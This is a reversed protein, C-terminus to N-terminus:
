EALSKSWEPEWYDPHNPDIFRELQSTNQQPDYHTMDPLRTHEDFMCNEFTVGGLHSNALNASEFNVLKFKTNRFDTRVIHAEKLDVNEFLSNQLRCSGVM